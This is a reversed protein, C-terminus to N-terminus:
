RPWRALPDAHLGTAIAIGIDAFAFLVAALRASPWPFFWWYLSWAVSNVLMWIVVGHTLWHPEILDEFRLCLTALATIVGGIGASARLSGILGRRRYFEVVWSYDGPEDWWQRLLRRSESKV